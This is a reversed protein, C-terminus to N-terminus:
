GQRVSSVPQSKQRRAAVSVFAEAWQPAGLAHLHTYAAFVNKYVIGDVKGDVARGRRIRYAFDLHASWRLRSHHFEHGRLTLGVPFFPNEGTVEAVVYGHGQPRDCIEVEAPIVGVMERYRGQWRIGRCLYMLGACEAYVPLGDEAASAIDERLGRNAELGDLFFEPFGGGLYLGDVASLRDKLSNIFVLRAGASRLAELNDPYYFNFVPDLMVGISAAKPRSEQAITGALPASEVRSAVALVGDLNLHAELARCIREVISDSQEAERYPILGLHREDVHLDPNRPISGVVPIGCYREVAARLKSEHRSGAVNNLVVAAINVDPQFRQYGMVMPAISNTMRATNVVLIVPVKLLQAVQASSGWGSDLGDYLGMAGEILAVDAGHCAQQFSAQLTEEPMLFLDLNRCSKGAAGTLWSPDIYDPGKKFPQVSLGRRRLMACLAISVTTKGSRGQPAAILVASCSKERTRM